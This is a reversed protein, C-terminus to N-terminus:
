DTTKTYFLTISTIVNTSIYARFILSNNTGFGFSCVISQKSDDTSFGNIITDVNSIDIGTDQWSANTTISLGTFVRCYIDKGDIWKQGTKQETTSYDWYLSEMSEIREEHDNVEIQVAGIAGSVGNVTVSIDGTSAYLTNTGQLLQIQEPTLQVTIPTALPLIFEATNNAYWTEFDSFTPFTTKPYFANIALNANSYWHQTGDANAFKWDGSYNNKQNAIIIAHKQPDNGDVYTQGATYIYRVNLWDSDGNSGEKISAIDVKKRDVTMVGSDFDVTGGYITSGLQITYTQGKYPEYATAQSGLEFQANSTYQEPHDTAVAFGYDITVYKGGSPITYSCPVPVWDTTHIASSNRESYVTIQAYTTYGTQTEISFTYTELPTVSIVNSVRARKIQDYKQQTTTNWAGNEIGEALNKGTRTVVSETHGTIPCINTYPAYTADTETSLRIMPYFKVNSVTEGNVIRIYVSKSGAESSTIAHDGNGAVIGLGSIGLGYTSGSGGVSGNLINGEILTLSALAIDANGGTATGNANVGTVNGDDDTLFTYVVNNITYADDSWTGDTNATKIDALVLPLKNKGAGGVWPKNYGHLDQVPEVKVSCDALNAPVANEITIVDAYPYTTASGNVENDLTTLGSELASIDGEHENIAGAVTKDTTQLTNDTAPQKEVTDITGDNKILGETSSKQVFNTTDVFGSLLDFKYVGDSIKAVGVNDGAKIPQGAGEIFDATTTGSDTMNYVNGENGAVLLGAVLEACTKTGAHHYASAVAADIASKVGGSKVPNNSNETPVDDFTLTDQKNSLATEVDAFSDISQGDKIASIATANDANKQKETDSYDNSSLDKGAVKDVKNALASASAIGLDALSKNGKLETGAIQPKNSLLNYNTTGGGGGSGNKAIQDLYAEERTIPEAPIEVAQGAIKALYQEKRNIPESPLQVGM